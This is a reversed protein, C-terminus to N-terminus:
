SIYRIDTKNTFNDYCFYTKIALHGLLCNKSVNAWHLYVFTREEVGQGAWICVYIYM